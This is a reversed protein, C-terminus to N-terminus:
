QHLRPKDGQQEIGGQDRQPPCAGRRRVIRARFRPRGAGRGLRQPGSVLHRAGLPGAQRGQGEAAGELAQKQADSFGGPPHLRPSWSTPYATITSSIPLCRGIVKTTPTRGSPLTLSTATM